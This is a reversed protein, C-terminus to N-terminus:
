WIYKCINKRQHSNKLNVRQAFKLIIEIIHLVINNVITVM